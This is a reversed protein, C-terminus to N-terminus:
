ILEGEGRSVEFKKPLKKGVPKAEAMFLDRGQAGM